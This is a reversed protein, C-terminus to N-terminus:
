GNWKGVLTKLGLKKVEADWIRHDILDKRAKCMGTGPFPLRVLLRNDHIREAEDEIKQRITPSCEEKLYKIATIEGVGKVGIVNDGSCGAIAKVDIWQEPEIGYKRHFAHINFRTRTLPNWIEVSPSLLQYLDQDSSSITFYADNNHCVSAILDDAEYGDQIFINRFGTQPLITDQLRNIQEFFRMEKQRDQPPLDDLRGARKQKYTKCTQRRISGESDFCFSFSRPSFRENLAAVERLFGFIVGNSLHGTTYQARRALNHCDVILHNNIM